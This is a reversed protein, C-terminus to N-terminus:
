SRAEGGNPSWAARALRMCMPDCAMRRTSPPTIASSRLSCNRWRQARSVDATSRPLRCRIRSGRADMRAPQRCFSAAASRVRRSRTATSPSRSRSRRRAPYCSRRGRLSPFRVGARPIRRSAPATCNARNSAAIPSSAKRRRPYKQDFVHNGLSYFVPRGSVCEPKQVVHPHHGIILDAGNKVLWAAAERQAANPWDLLESGWHVSVVVLSALRRALRLKQRLTDSPIPVAGTGDRGALQSYAIVAVTIDGFRFFAPSDELRLAALGAAGLAQVTAARGATGLDGAHNNEIGLAHFGAKSLLPILKPPIDFCPSAPTSAVCNKADGVAGELNGAVWTATRFLEPFNSWPSRGTREIEARVQRSLLIDGTFLLRVPEADASFSLLVFAVAALTRPM